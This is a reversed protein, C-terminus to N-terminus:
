FSIFNGIETERELIRVGALRELRHTLVYSQESLGKALRLPHQSMHRTWCPRGVGAPGDSPRLGIM